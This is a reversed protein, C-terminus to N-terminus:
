SSHAKDEPLVELNKPLLNNIPPLGLKKGNDPCQPNTMANLLEKSYFETSYDIKYWYEKLPLSSEDFDKSRLFCLTNLPDALYEGYKKILDKDFKEAVYKHSILNPM